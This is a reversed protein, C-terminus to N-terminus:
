LPVVGHLRKAGFLRTPEIEMPRSSSSHARKFRQRMERRLESSDISTTACATVVLWL